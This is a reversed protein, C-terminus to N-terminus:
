DSAGQKAREARYQLVTIILGPLVASSYACAFLFLAPRDPDFPLLAIVFLVGSVLAFIAAVVVLNRAVQLPTREPRRVADPETSM